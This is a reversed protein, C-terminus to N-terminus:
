WPGFAPGPWAGGYLSASQGLADPAGGIGIQIPGTGMMRAFRIYQLGYISMGWHGAGDEMVSAVDRGYSVKDVTGQNIVGVALGPPSGPAGSSALRDLALFHAVFLAYGEKLMTGWRDAKLLKTAMDIYFQVQRESYIASNIFVPFQSRFTTPTLPDDFVYSASDRANCAETVGAFFTSGQNLDTANASEIIDANFNTAM